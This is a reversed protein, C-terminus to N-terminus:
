KKNKKIPFKIELNQAEIEKSTIRIIKEVDILNTDFESMMKSLLNNDTYNEKAFKEAKSIILDYTYFESSEANPKAWYYWVDDETIEENKCIFELVSGLFHESDGLGMHEANYNKFDKTYKKWDAFDNSYYSMFGSRSTYREELYKEYAAKNDYIYKRIATIKPVIICNVSDSSFNYERPSVLNEFTISKVFDGLQRELENCMAKCVAEKYLKWNFHNWVEGKFGQELARESEQEDDPEYISEYFGSFCPLFTKIEQKIPTKTKTKM